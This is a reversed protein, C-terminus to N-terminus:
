QGEQDDNLGQQTDNTTSTDDAGNDNTLLNVDWGLRFHWGATKSIRLFIDFTSSEKCSIQLQLLMDLPLPHKLDVEIHAHQTPKLPHPHSLQKKVPPIIRSLEPYNHTVAPHCNHLLSSYSSLLMVKGPLRSGGSVCLQLFYNQFGFNPDSGPVM